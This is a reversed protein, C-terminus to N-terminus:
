DEAKWPRHKEDDHKLPKPNYHASRRCFRAVDIGRLFQEKALQEGLKQLEAGLHEPRAFFSTGKTMAVTRFEGAWGYVDQFLHQHIHRLHDGDFSGQIPNEYLELLRAFVHDSEFQSLHGADRIDALNRLVPTEPYLYPDGEANAKHSLEQPLSAESRGDVAERCAPGRHIGQSACGSRRETHARRAAIDGASRPCNTRKERASCRRITESPSYDYGYSKRKNRWKLM